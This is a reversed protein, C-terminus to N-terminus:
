PQLTYVASPISNLGYYEGKASFAFSGLRGTVQVLDCLPPHGQRGLARSLPELTLTKTKLRALNGPASGKRQTFLNALRIHFNCM